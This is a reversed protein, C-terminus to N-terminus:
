NRRLGPCTRPRARRAPRGVARGAPPKLLGAPRGAHTPSSAACRATVPGRPGPPRVVRSQTYAKAARLAGGWGWGRRVCESILARWRTVAVTGPPTRAQAQAGGRGRLPLAVTLSCRRSVEKAASSAGVLPPPPPSPPTPAALPPLYCSKVLTQSPADLSAAKSRVAAREPRGSDRRPSQALAWGGSTQTDGHGRLHRTCLAWCETSETPCPVDRFRTRSEPDSGRNNRHRQCGRPPQAHQWSM